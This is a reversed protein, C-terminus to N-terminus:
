FLDAFDQVLFSKRSTSVHNPHNGPIVQDQLESKQM